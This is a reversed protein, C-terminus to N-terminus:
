SLIESAGRMADWHHVKSVHRVKYGDASEVGGRLRELLEESLDTLFLEYLTTLCEIGHPLRRLEGCRVICLQHISSMAGEEIIVRNLKPLNNLWLRKLRPFGGAHFRMQQGNYADNLHLYALEPLSQILSPTPDQTLKSEILWLVKLNQLHAFWSPLKELHGYLILKRLNPPPPSLGELHLTQLVGEEVSAVIALHLLHRMKVISACLEAEYTTKVDGIWLIRLQMLNRIERVIEEDARIFKLTQIDKFRWAEKPTPKCCFTSPATQKSLSFSGSILHRLKRLKVISRPLIEVNSYWLDLTQLTQLRGLSEPLHKVRTERLSLYHLNFLNFVEDPVRDIHSGKLELVRLSRFCSTATNISFLSFGTPAFLFFSRIHLAFFKQPVSNGIKHISLRRTRKDGAWDGHDGDYAVCFNEKESISKALERMLDHMRCSKVWGFDNTKTAQLMSRFVLENFYDEAVDELTNGRREQVFGEAIWLRILTKRKIVQDEPFISCYLFCNKLYYPLDIFSLNLISKLPELIPNNSLQSSLSANVKQWEQETRERLSLVSGITVIALPLGGCKDLITKVQNEMGKPCGGVHDKGFAKKCFLTIAAQEELPALEFLRCSDSSLLSAVQKNRTTIVIRSGNRRDPFACNIETWVKVDWVDDLVLLYRKDELYDVLFHLLRVYNEGNISPPTIAKKEEFFKTIISRLLNETQYSQSVSVWAYCDFHVAKQKNYVNTVLTTKGLGGMGWVSIVTRQSEEDTLWGVLLEKYKEMGVVDKDEIFHTSEALRTRRGGDTSSSPAENSNGIRFQNQNEYITLIEKKIEQLKIGIQHRMFITKMLHISKRLHGTFGRGRQKYIHYMYEDITDEVDYVAERVKNVWTREVESSEKRIYADELFSQMFELKCTIENIDDRVGWLHLAENKVIVGLKEVLSEVAIAM